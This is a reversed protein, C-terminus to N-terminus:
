KPAPERKWALLLWGDKAEFQVPVFKGAKAFKGQPVFGEGSIEKDFVKDFRKELMTKLGSESSSLTTKGPPAIDLKEARVAKVKGDKNVITYTASINMGPYPKTGTVFQTGRITITFTNDAFSVTIPERSAFSVTWPEEKDNPRMKDPLKGFLEVVKAQFKEEEITMGGLAGRAFNNIMSEHIRVSIDSGEAVVPPATPAAILAEGSLRTVAKLASETSSVNIQEPFLKHEELPKRIKNQYKENAEEVTKDAQADIRANIKAEAHQAAVGEAKPLSKGAKKWAIREILKSGRHSKIDQIETNTEANSSAPHSHVGEEDIWLRKVAGIKTEGQSYICVPGNLGVTQSYATAFLFMDIVGRSDDPTLKPETKGVTHGTGSISTGMICDEIPATDDITEGLGAAITAESAEALLNPQAFQKEIAAVLESAQHIQKLRIVCDSIGLADERNAKVAFGKIHNALKDLIPAYTQQIVPSEIERAIGSFEYLANRVDIFWSLALGEHGANYREFASYLAKRDPKGETRRVEKQVVDWLLYKRWADGNDGALKLRADLRDLAVVLRDRVQNLDDATLPRFHAKAEDCQSALKVFDTTGTAPADAYSASVASAVTAALSLFLFSFQMRWRM